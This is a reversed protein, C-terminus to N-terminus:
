QQTSSAFPVAVAADGHLPQTAGVAAGAAAIITAPDVAAEGPCPTDVAAAEDVQAAPPVTFAAEEAEACARTSSASAHKRLAAFSAMPSANIVTKPVAARDAHSSRIVEMVEGTADPPQVPHRQSVDDHSGVDEAASVAGNRAAATQLPDSPFSEAVVGENVHIKSGTSEVEEGNGEAARAGDVAGADSGSRPTPADVDEDCCCCFISIGYYALLGTLVGAVLVVVVSIVVLAIIGDRTESDTM